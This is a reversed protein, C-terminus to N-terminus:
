SKARKRKRGEVLSRVVDAGVAATYVAFPAPIGFFLSLTLGVVGGVTGGILDAHDEMKKWLTTSLEQQESASLDDIQFRRKDPNERIGPRSLKPKKPSPPVNDDSDPKKYMELFRVMAAPPLVKVVTLWFSHFWIEGSMLKGEPDGTTPHIAEMKERGVLDSILTKWREVSNIFYGVQESEPAKRVKPPIHIEDAFTLAFVAKNWDVGAETYQELARTVANMMRTQRLDFCFIVAHVSSILKEIEALCAEDSRDTRNDELGPTDYVVIPVGQVEGEFTEIEDTTSWGDDGVEAVEEGFLNNILTSKGTGTIGIIM